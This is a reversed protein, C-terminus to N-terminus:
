KTKTGNKIREHRSNKMENLIQQLRRNEQEILYGLVHIEKDEWVTSIEVGTILEIGIERSTKQAEELGGLTDHDTIAIAKFGQAKAARVVFQPSYEGDSANTHIHLDAFDAM